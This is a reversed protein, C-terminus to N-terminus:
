SFLVVLASTPRWPKCVLSVKQHGFIDAVMPRFDNKGHHKLNPSFVSIIAVWKLSTANYILWLTCHRSIIQWYTLAPLRIASILTCSCLWVLLGLQLLLIFGGLALMLSDQLAALHRPNETQDQQM